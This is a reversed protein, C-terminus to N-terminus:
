PESLETDPRADRLEVYAATVVAASFITAVPTLAIRLAPAAVSGAPAVMGVLGLAFGLIWLVVLLGFLEWRHGQSLNWTGALAGLLGKDAVAVEQRYFVATVALFIGPVLLLVLGLGVGLLLVVGGIWGLVTARAIRRSALSGPIGDLADEAFARVAVIRVAEAVFPLVVILLGLVSPPMDVALPFPGFGNLFDILQPDTTQEKALVVWESLLTQGVVSSIAGVIVLLGFLEAGTRSLLGDIGASFLDSLELSVGDPDNWEEDDATDSDGWDVGPPDDWEDDRPDDDRDSM